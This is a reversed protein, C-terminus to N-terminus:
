EKNTEENGMFTWGGRLPFYVDNDKVYCLYTFIKFINFTKTNLFYPLHYRLNLSKSTYLYDTNPEGWLHSKCMPCDGELYRINCYTCEIGPIIQCELSVLTPIIVLNLGGQVVPTTPMSLRHNYNLLGLNQMNYKEILIHYLETGPSYYCLESITMNNYPLTDGFVLFYLDDHLLTRTRFLINKDSIINHADYYYLGDEEMIHDLAYTLDLYVLDNPQTNCKSIEVTTNHYQYQFINYKKIDGLPRLDLDATKCLIKYSTLDLIIDELYM